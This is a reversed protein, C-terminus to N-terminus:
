GHPRPHPHLPSSLRTIGLLHVAQPRGDPQGWETGLETGLKEVPAPSADRVVHPQLERGLWLMVALVAVWFLFTAVSRM